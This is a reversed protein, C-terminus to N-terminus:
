EHAVAAIVDETVEEGEDSGSIGSLPHNLVFFVTTNTFRSLSFMTKEVGDEEFHELESLTHFCTM